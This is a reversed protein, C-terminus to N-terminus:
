TCLRVSGRNFPVREILQQMEELRLSQVPTISAEFAFRRIVRSTGTGFRAEM